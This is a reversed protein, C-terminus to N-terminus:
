DEEVPPDVLRNLDEKKVIQSGDLKYHKIADSLISERIVLVLKHPLEGSVASKVVSSLEPELGEGRLELPGIEDVIFYDANLPPKIRLWSRAVKFAKISFKYPGVEHINDPNKVEPSAEASVNVDMYPNLFHREGDIVPMLVGHARINNKDIWQQLATTKGEGPDGTLIFIKGQM